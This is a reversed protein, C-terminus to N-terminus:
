YTFFEAWHKEFEFNQVLIQVENLAAEWESDVEVSDLFDIANQTEDISCLLFAKNSISDINKPTKLLREEFISIATSFNDKFADENGNRKEVMGSVVYFTPKLTNSEHGLISLAKQATNKASEFKGLQLECTMKWFYSSINTDFEVSERFYAHAASYKSSTTDPLRLIEMGHEYAIESKQKYSKRHCSFSFAIIITLLFLRNMDPAVSQSDYIYFFILGTKSLKIKGIMAM